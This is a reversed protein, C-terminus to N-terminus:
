WGSFAGVAIQKETSAASLEQMIEDLWAPTPPVRDAAGDKCNLYLLLNEFNKVFAFLLFFMCLWLM